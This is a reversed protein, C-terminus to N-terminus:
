MQDNMKMIAIFHLQGRESVTELYNYIDGSYLEVRSFVIVENDSHM